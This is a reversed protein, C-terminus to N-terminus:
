SELTSRTGTLLNTQMSEDRVFGSRLQRPMMLRLVVRGQSRRVTVIEGRVSSARTWIALKKDRRLTLPHTNVAWGRPAHTAVLRATGLSTLRRLVM